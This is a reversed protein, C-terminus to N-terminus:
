WVVPLKPNALHYMRVAAEPYPKGAEPAGERTGDSAIPGKVWLHGDCGPYGSPSLKLTPRPGFGMDPPNCWGIRSDEGPKPSYPGRGSRSTDVVYRVDGGLHARIERAYAHEAKTTRFHSVNTAFGRARRVGARDLAEAMDDSRGAFWGSDGGDLEVLAGAATFVDIAHGLCRYRVDRGAQDLKPSSKRQDDLMMALADPELVVLCLRGQIGDALGDVWGRYAAESVPAGQASYSGLDRNPINYAVFVPLQDGARDLMSDVWGGTSSGTLWVASPVAALERMMEARVPNTTADFAAQKAALSDPPNWLTKSRIDIM